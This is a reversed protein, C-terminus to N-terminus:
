VRACRRCFARPPGRLQSAFRLARARPAGGASTLPTYYVQTASQFGAARMARRLANADRGPVRAADDAGIAVEFLVCDHANDDLVFGHYTLYVHNPQGYNEFM